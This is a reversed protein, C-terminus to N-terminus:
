FVLTVVLASVLAIRLRMKLGLGGVLNLLISLVTSGDIKAGDVIASGEFSVTAAGSCLYYSLGCCPMGQHRLTCYHADARHTHALSSSSTDVFDLRGFEVLLAETFIGVVAAIAEIRTVVGELRVTTPKLAFLLTAAMLPAHSHEITSPRLVTTFAEKAPMIIAAGAADARLAATVDPFSLRDTQVCRYHSGDTAAM